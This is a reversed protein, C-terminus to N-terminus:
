ENEKRENRLKNAREWTYWGTLGAVILGAGVLALQGLANAQEIWTGAAASVTLLTGVLAKTDLMHLGQTM